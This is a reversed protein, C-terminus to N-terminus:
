WKDNNLMFIKSIMIILYFIPYFFDLAFYKFFNLELQFNKRLKKTILFLIICRILLLIFAFISFKNLCCILIILLIFFVSRSVIDFTSFFIGSFNYYRATSTHRNKQKIFDRFKIKPVSYTFSQPNLSITTNNKNGAQKLFLDDDGSLINKYKEFGNVNEWQKKSYALNRGACMYPFGLISATFYQLGIIYTDYLILNNLFGSTKQYNGFGLIIQKEESLNGCISALWDESAPFCDADIFVLFDNKSENIAFTLANKKGENAKLNIIKLLKNQFFMSLIKETEDTSNDNVVIVEFNNHKQNLVLPLFNKLNEAENKASIIISVPLDINKEKTNKLEKNLLFM